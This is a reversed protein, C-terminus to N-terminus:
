ARARAAKGRGPLGRTRWLRALTMGREPDKWRPVLAALPGLVFARERYRPHPLTLAADHRVEDGYLILDLDLTRASRPGTRVRGRAAELELLWRMLADPALSSRGVAVANLYDPQLDPVDVPATSEFPSVRLHQVHVRLSEVAWALHAHRDGLNSGLAIAVRAPRAGRGTTM